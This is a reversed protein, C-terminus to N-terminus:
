QPTALIQTWYHHYNVSGSDNALYYYGVGIEQLNCNLINDRHGDSNMWDEVVAEPTTYGAAINEAASCYEYNIAAIRQWPSSGDSGTHSFFDHLAMDQSHNAAASSLQQNLTVAPCGYQRRYSNTANVLRIVFDPEPQGFVIPLFVYSTTANTHTLPAMQDPRNRRPLLEEHRLTLGPSHQALDPFERLTSANVWRFSGFTFLTLATALAFVRVLRNTM